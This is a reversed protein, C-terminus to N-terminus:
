NTVHLSLMVLKDKMILMCFLFHMFACTGTVQFKKCKTCVQLVVEVVGQKVVVGEVM